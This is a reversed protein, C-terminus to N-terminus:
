TKHKLRWLIKYGGRKTPLAHIAMVDENTRESTKQRYTKRRRRRHRAGSERRSWKIATHRVRRGAEARGLRGM